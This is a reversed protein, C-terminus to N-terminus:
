AIFPRHAARAEALAARIKDVAGARPGDHITVHSAVPTPSLQSADDLVGPAGASQADPFAPGPDSTPLLCARGALAGLGATAGILWARRTLGPKMHSSIM